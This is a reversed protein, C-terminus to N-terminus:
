HCPSFFNTFLRLVWWIVIVSLAITLLRVVVFLVKWLKFSNNNNNYESTINNCYM